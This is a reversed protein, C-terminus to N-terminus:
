NQVNGKFVVEVNHGNPDIIFAAYYHKAYQPRLGPPGNCQGGAAIAAKYFLRVQEKSKTRFAIHFSTLQGIGRYQSIEFLSENGIDFALFRGEEGFSIQYNLPAFAKEYFIKSGLLDNVPITVHDIM